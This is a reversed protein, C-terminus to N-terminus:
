DKKEQDSRILRFISRFGAVSGLIFGVMMLWPRTTFLYDLGYGGLAGILVSALMEVGVGGYRVWDKM